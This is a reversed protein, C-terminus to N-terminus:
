EYRLAVMPDVKMARRAPIYGATAAVAFLIVVVATLTLPDTASVNFLLRRLLHSAALAAPIGVLLGAAALKLTEKLIMQLINARTAGLAVRIGIENTRCSVSYSIVGFIGIASLILAMAAFLSLLVTRFKPQAASAQIEEPIEAIGTIPLDKDLKHVQERVANAVSEPNLTTKVVLNAGWFTAQTYPAYMMPGPAQGLSVDRVDGVVGVIQRQIEGEPPLGFTLFKGIPNQNPFYTRALQQNIIAVRPATDLDRQDFPRGALLPIAMVRFYEPSISVFDATRSTGPALPPNGEIGFEINVQGDTIPRPLVVASNQLGPQAQLNALLTSSFNAWQKSTAYQSIPLDINAQLTHESNFGPNVSILKSFSRLFLGAAVLLVMALAIEAAALYSRARRRTALEGARAGGERLNSQLNSNAAFLAPALGFACSALIALVLAFALVFNDVRIANLHPFDPPLFTSLAQVGWYALAIGAVGGLLGLVAAESLLQRVIRKRGAGLATRVAIERARSTARTLLLNALNTCAILLVLAVAGFLVLLAPKVNEIMMSHLPMMRMMWGRNEAPFEAALRAGIADLEIQAQAPNIGPKLRATIRLYHGSRRDMWQGFVPDQVLPVWLQDPHNINPFRFAAPMIGVVTFSRKDLTITSGVIQPDANFLTRWLSESLITVPTAGHKGDESYFIRGALPKVQFVSFLEPTAISANVVTPEGRGILTLQHQQTGAIETFASNQQRLATLNPYSMGTFPVGEEPQIQFLTYLQAPQPYPLPKLLVAYVVSFIATNAGIGLALTLVAIATFGPNKRLIRLGYRIDQWFQELWVPNWVERTDEQIKTVNGFKRVAAYHAEQPPMGKAINDQTEIDIHLRIDEDLHHLPHNGPDKTSM